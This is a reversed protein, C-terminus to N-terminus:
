VEDEPTKEGLLKKTLKELLEYNTWSHRQEYPVREAPSIDYKEAREREKANRCWSLDDVSQAKKGKRGKPAKAEAVPADEKVAGKLNVRGTLYAVITTKFSGRVLIKGDANCVAFDDKGKTTWLEGTKAHGDYIAIFIRHTGDGPFKDVALKVTPNVTRKKVSACKARLRKVRAEVKKADAWKGPKKWYLLLDENTEEDIADLALFDNLNM